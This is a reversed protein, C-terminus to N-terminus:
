DQTRTGWFAGGRGVGQAWLWERVPPREERASLGRVPRGAELTDEREEVRVRNYTKVKRFINSM